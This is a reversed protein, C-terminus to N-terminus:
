EGTTQRSCIRRISPLALFTSQTPSCRSYDGGPEPATRSDVILKMSKGRVVAFALTSSTMTAAPFEELDNVTFCADSDWANAIPRGIGIWEPM